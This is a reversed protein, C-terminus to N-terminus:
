RVIAEGRWTADPMRILHLGLWAWSAVLLIHPELIPADPIAGFAVGYDWVLFAILLALPARPFARSRWCALSLLLLGFFTGLFHPVITVVIAGPDAGLADSVRIANDAGLEQPVTYSMLYGMALLNHFGWMGVVALTTGVATLMRARWRSVQALGLLGLTAFLMSTVLALQEARVAAADTVGLRIYDDFSEVQGYVLPGVYQPLGNLLGALLLSAGAAVRAARSLPVSSHVAPQGAIDAQRAATM